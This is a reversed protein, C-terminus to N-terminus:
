HCYFIVLYSFKHCKNIIVVIININAFHLLHFYQHYDYFIYCEFTNYHCCSIFSYHFKECYHVCCFCFWYYFVVSLLLSDLWYNFYHQYYILLVLFHNFIFNIVVIFIVIFIINFIGISLRIRLLFYSGQRYAASVDHENLDSPNYTEM